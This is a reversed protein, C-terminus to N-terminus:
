TKKKFKKNYQELYAKRGDLGFMDTIVKRLNM